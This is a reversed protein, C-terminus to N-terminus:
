VRDPGCGCAECEYRDKKLAWVGLVDVDAWGHRGPHGQRLLRVDQAMDRDAESGLPAQIGAPLLHGAESSFTRQRYEEDILQGYSRNNASVSPSLTLDQGGTV